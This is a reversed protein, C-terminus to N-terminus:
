FVTRITLRVNRGPSLAGAAVWQKYTDLFDVYERDTLNRVTLDIAVDAKACRLHVGAAFDILTYGEFDARSFLEDPGSAEADSTRTAKLEFFGDHWRKKAPLTFRLGVRHRDPPTVPLPRGTADNETSVHDTQLLLALGPRLAYSLAAEYGHSTADAQRYEVVPLEGVFEDTQAAYVHDDFETRYASVHADLREDRWRFSLEANVNSEEELDPNGREYAAVGTHQGAAFLEYESPARWGRGVSLGVSAKGLFHRVLALSGSLADWSRNLGELDERGPTALVDLEKNDFRAGASLTWGTEDDGALKLEEFLAVSTTETELNPLLPALGRTENDQTYHELVVWGRLRGGSEHQLEARLTRTELALDVAKPGSLGGPFAKRVNETRHAAVKFRGIRSPITAEVIAVDNDIDLRFDPKPPLFFGYENEWHSFRAALQVGGDFAYGFAVSGAAQDYDTNDLEREPTSLDGSSRKTWAARWGFRGFAGDLELRGVGADNNSAFGALFEGHLMTEGPRTSLLGPSVMNVVGGLADPGYLVSAPGRVLEVREADYPEIAPTHRLSFQQYNHAFGDTLVRIRDNTMGRIMPKGAQDGTAVNRAGAIDGVAEGLSAGSRGRIAGEDVVDVSQAATLRDASWPAASVTLEEVYELGPKLRVVLPDRSPATIRQHEAAFGHLHFGVVFSGSPLGEFRFEGADNTVTTRGLDPISVVVGPLPTDTSAEVVRGSLAPGDEAAVSTSLSFCLGLLCLAALAGTRSVLALPRSLRPPEWSPMFM